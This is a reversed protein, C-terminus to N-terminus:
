SEITIVQNRGRQKARYMAEDARAILAETKEGPRAVTVGISVTTRITGGPIPIPEAASLRLKEAIAVANQLNQVGHLVALLEDGGVRAGLDDTSRLCHRIRDAMVRLVEDGAAHGYTDNITKFKDMDCFLVAIAQGTRPHQGAYAEIREFVEKRNLLSTLEDTRARHELAQEIAVQEDILHFAAIVGDRRDQANVYPMARSEAWHATGDKALAQYRAVVPEGQVVRDLNTRLTPLSEPTVFGTIPRGIWEGPDWGLLAKISPSVWTVKGEDDIRIATDYSNTTLLRYHEESAALKQTLLYRDTVDRWTFSLADGVRVARIDFRRDEALIEHPYVFDNLVLPQDTELAHCYMDLLGSSTHAPLLELLRRGVLRAREMKNYRCAAENADAYVFDIIRGQKDRVAELMVHPDLLSDLTAHLRAREMELAARAQVMNQIDQWGGVLHTVTGADDLAPRISVSFWHYGDTRIRIRLEIEFGIGDKLGAQAAALRDTDDPHVLDRLQRGVLQEPTWGTRVSVSPTVWEILGDRSSRFVVDSANEALLRYEQERRTLDHRIKVKDTIDTISIRCFDGHDGDRAAPIVEFRAWFFSGDSKLLRLECTQAAGDALLKRRTLYFIDQDEPLIVRGLPLTALQERPMALLHAATLNAELIINHDDLTIYGVPALDFLEFYRAREVDISAQLRRLEENQMELEVQHVLLEHLTKETDAGPRLPNTMKAVAAEARHRLVAAQDEPPTSM